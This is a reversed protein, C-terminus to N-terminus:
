PAGGLAESPGQQRSAHGLSGKEQAARPWRPFGGAAEQARQSPDLGDWTVSDGWPADLRNSPQGKLRDERDAQLRPAAGLGGLVISSLRLVAAWGQAQGRSDCRPAVDLPGRLLGRSVDESERDM